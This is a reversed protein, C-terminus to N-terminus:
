FYSFGTNARRLVRVLPRRGDGLAHLRAALGLRGSSGSGGLRLALAALLLAAGARLVSLGRLHEGLQLIRRLRCSGALQQGGLLPDLELARRRPELESRMFLFQSLIVRPM